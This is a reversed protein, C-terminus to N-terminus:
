CNTISRWLRLVGCRARSLCSGSGVSRPPGQQNYRCSLAQNSQMESGMFIANGLGVRDGNQSRRGAVMEKGLM